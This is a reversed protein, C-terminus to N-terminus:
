EHQAYRASGAMSSFRAVTSSFLRHFRREAADLLSQGLPARGRDLAQNLLAALLALGVGGWWGRVFALLRVLPPSQPTIALVSM